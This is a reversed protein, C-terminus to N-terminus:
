FCFARRVTTLRAKYHRPKDHDRGTM